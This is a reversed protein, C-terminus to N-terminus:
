RVQRHQIRELGNGQGKGVVSHITEEMPVSLYPRQFILEKIQLSYAVDVKQPIPTIVHYSM